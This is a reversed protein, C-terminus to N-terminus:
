LGVVYPDTETGTGSIIKISSKLHVTPRVGYANTPNYNYGNGSFNINWVLLSSYRNMLWMNISNSSGGAQHTAFMEGYRPLGINFTGKDSTKDCVSTKGSTTNACVSLKYNYGSRGLYYLGSDFLEGYTDKLNKLYGTSSDNLYTYWTETDTTTGSGWLTDSSSTAFKKTAKNDAYDMAIIKTKNEEVGIIRFLQENNGNQLKVYEGSMRTNVLENATGTDKDGVIKYPSQKTGNGTFELGSKLYISPRSGRTDTPNDSNSSGNSSVYWVYSSNYPNLLWWYYGINLYGDYTNSGSCTASSICRYSNYYEYSNLLGVNATVMNTEQPKTSITTDSPMTANWKKSTDIFGNANYLTDYFDENLWQYMYSTTNADTYFNVQGSANFAISTINNQTVLKMAGDPYIATIRWLKGSYWVYNMDVCANTGSFYTIDDTTDESTGNDDVWIPNCSNTEANQKALIARQVKQTGTLPKEVWIGENAEVKIRFSIGSTKLANWENTSVVTKGEALSNLTGMSYSETGDYTDSILIKNTDLYAKITISGDVGDATGTPNNQPIYGVLLMQDGVLTDGVLKKYILTDKSERATWYNASPDGLDAVTFDLTIPVIQGESTYINTDTASVLYEIGDIYDTDGKIDISYTGVKTPDNLDSTNSPDIPFLNTLNIISENESVFSIRGVEITNSAGTRTYNFFAYTVGILGIVLIFVGLIILVKQKRKQNNYEEM